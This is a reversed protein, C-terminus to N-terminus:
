SLAGHVRPHGHMARLPADVAVPGPGSESSPRAAGGAETVGPALAASDKPTLQRGGPSAPRAALESGHRGSGGELPPNLGPVPLGPPGPRKRSIAPSRASSQAPGRGRSRRENPNTLPVMAPPRHASRQVPVRLPKARFSLSPRTANAAKLFSDGIVSRMSAASCPLPGLTSTAGRM